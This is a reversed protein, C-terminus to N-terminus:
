TPKDIEPVLLNLIEPNSNTSFQPPTIEM